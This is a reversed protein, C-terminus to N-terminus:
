FGKCYFSCGVRLEEEFYNNLAIRNRQLLFVM